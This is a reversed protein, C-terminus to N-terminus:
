KKVKEGADEIAKGTAEMNEGTDKKLGSWTDGCGSMVVAVLIVSAFAILKKM